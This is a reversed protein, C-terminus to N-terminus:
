SKQRSRASRHRAVTRNMRGIQNLESETRIGNEKRERETRKGEQNGQNRGPRGEGPQSGADHTSWVRRPACTDSLHERRRQSSVSTAAWGSPRLNPRARDPTRDQETQPETKSLSREALPPEGRPALPVRPSAAGVARPLECLSAMGGHCAGRRPLVPRRPGSAGCGRSGARFEAASEHQAGGTRRGRRRPTRSVAPSSAIFRRGAAEEAIGPKGSKQSEAIEPIGADKRVLHGAGTRLSPRGPASTTAAVGDGGPTAPSM